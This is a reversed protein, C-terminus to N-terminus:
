QLLAQERWERCAPRRRAAIQVVIRHANKRETRITADQLRGDLATTVPKKFSRFLVAGSRAAAEGGTEKSGGREGALLPLVPEHAGKHGYLMEM